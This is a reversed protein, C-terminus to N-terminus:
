AKAIERLFNPCFDFGNEWSIGGFEDIKVQKFYSLDLLKSSIGDSIFPKICIIADSNDSFRVWINYNELPKVEIITEM